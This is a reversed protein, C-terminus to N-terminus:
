SISRGSDKVPSLLASSIDGITPCGCLAMAELLESRLLGLTTEVGTQGDYALGWIIPRGVLVAKAGLALAKVIDTGRRIAGDVLVDIEGAIAEVIYPLAMSTPPATDLQRGGHNSVIVAAAGCNMARTADDPHIIGKIVIPLQTQTRLWEVDSWTVSPDLMDRVYKALASGSEIRHLSNLGSAKLNAIELTSPLHFSTQQDGERTGIEAADVTLVIAKYGAADARQVLSKTIERDKYVYLQFWLPRTADEALTELSVNSLTSICAITGFAGAARVTASEADQHALGHFATPAILVPASLETGLVSTSCDRQSVDVLVRYWLHIKDWTARNMRLTIEDRSGGRFYTAAMQSMHSYAIEELDYLSQIM